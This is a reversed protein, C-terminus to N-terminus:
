LLSDYNILDHCSFVPLSCNDDEDHSDEDKFIEYDGFLLMLGEFHAWAVEFIVAIPTTRFSLQM